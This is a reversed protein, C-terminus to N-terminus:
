EDIKNIKQKLYIFDGAWTNVRDLKETDVEETLPYSPKRKLHEKLINDWHKKEKKKESRNM